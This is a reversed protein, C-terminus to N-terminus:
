LRQISLVCSSLLPKIATPLVRHYYLARPLGAPPNHHHFYTQIDALVCAHPAFWSFCGRSAASTHAAVLDALAKFILPLIQNTDLSILIPKSILKLHLIGLSILPNFLYFQRGLLSSLRPEIGKYMYLYFFYRVGCFRERTLYATAHTYGLVCM